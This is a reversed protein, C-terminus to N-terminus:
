LAPAHVPRSASVAGCAPFSALISSLEPGTKGSHDM